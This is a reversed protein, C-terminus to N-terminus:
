LIIARRQRWSLRAALGGGRGGNLRDSNGDLLGGLFRRGFFQGLHAVRRLCGFRLRHLLELVDQRGTGRTQDIGVGSFRLLRRRTQDQERDPPVFVRVRAELAPQHADVAFQNLTRPTVLETKDQNLGRALRFDPKLLIVLARVIVFRQPFMQAGATDLRYLNSWQFLTFSRCVFFGTVSKRILM